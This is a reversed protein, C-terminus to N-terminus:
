EPSRHQQQKIANNIKVTADAYLKYTYPTNTKKFFPNNQRTEAFIGTNLMKYVENVMNTAKHSLGYISKNAQKKKKFNIIWGDKIMKHFRTSNWHFIKQYEKFTEANFYEESYLFFLFDLQETNVGYKEKVLKRVIRWYKMYDNKRKSKM